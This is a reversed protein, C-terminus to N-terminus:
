STSYISDNKVLNLDMRNSDRTIHLDNPLEICSVNVIKGIPDDEDGKGEEEQYDVFPESILAPELLGNM